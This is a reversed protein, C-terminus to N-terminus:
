AFANAFKSSGGRVRTWGLERGVRATRESAPPRAPLPPPPRCRSWSVLPAGGSALLLLLPPGRQPVTAPHAPGEEGIAGAKRPLGWPAPSAVGRRVRVEKVRKGQQPPVGLPRPMARGLRAARPEPAARQAARRAAPARWAARPGSCGAVKSRGRARQSLLRPPESDHPGPGLGGQSAANAEELTHVAGCGGLSEFGRCGARDWARSQPASRGPAGKAKTSCTVAGKGGEQGRTGARETGLLGCPAHGTHTDRRKAASAARAPGARRAQSPQRSGGDRSDPWALRNREGGTGTLCQRLGEPRLGNASQPMARQAHALSFRRRTRSGREGRNHAPVPVGTTPCACGPPVALPLVAASPLEARRTATLAASSGCCPGTGASAFGILV